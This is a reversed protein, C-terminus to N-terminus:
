RQMWIPQPLDGLKKESLLILSESLWVAEDRSAIYPERVAVWSRRQYCYLARQCGGLRMELSLILSESLWVAEDRIVIYPERAAV